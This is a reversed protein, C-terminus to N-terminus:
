FSPGSRLLVEDSGSVISLLLKLWSYISLLPLLALRDFLFDVKMSCVLRTLSFQDVM